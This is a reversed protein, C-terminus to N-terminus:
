AQGHDVELIPVRKTLAALLEYSISGSAQAVEEVPLGEGWLIVDSGVVADPVSSLDCAIMDMSVRGILKALKGCVLIPTGNPANRLYGDAYGCAIIGVRLPAEATFLGGYGVRDGVTLSQIAILESKLTMVPKLGFHSAPTDAFPSSGYLAIGPRVSDFAAQPYRLIAASNATCLEHSFPEGLEQKFKDLTELQWDIGRTADADAFHTMMGIIKLHSFVDLQQKLIKIKNLNFGLRNMGTNLKIYASLQTNTKKFLALQEMCHIVPTLRYQVCLDLDASDFVGEMLLIPHQYGAERLSIAADIELLAFGDAMQSLARATRELGHGYANAKIVAWIKAHSGHDTLHKRILQYNHRLAALNIIAQIPRSM